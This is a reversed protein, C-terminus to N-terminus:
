PIYLRPTGRLNDLNLVIEVLREVCRERYEREALRESNGITLVPLSSPQVEERLTRELSDRGSMNRNDTLLIMQREQAFRWVLRDNTAFPLAISPFTVFEVPVLELWGSAQLTDWLRPALGELNVDILIANV